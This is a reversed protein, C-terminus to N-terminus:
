STVGMISSLVLLESIFLKSLTTNYDSSSLILTVDKSECDPERELIDHQMEDIKMIFSFILGMLLIKQYWSMCYIM